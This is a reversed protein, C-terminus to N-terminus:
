SEQAPAPPTNFWDDDSVVPAPTAASDPSPIWQGDGPPVDFAKVDGYEAWFSEGMYQSYYRPESGIFEYM